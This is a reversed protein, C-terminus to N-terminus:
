KCATRVAFHKRVFLQGIHQRFFETISYLYGFGGLPFAVALVAHFARVTRFKRHFTHMQVVIIESGVPVVLILAIIKHFPDTIVGFHVSQEVLPPDGVLIEASTRSRDGAIKLLDM